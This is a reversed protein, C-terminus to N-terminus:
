KSNRAEETHENIAGLISEETTHFSRSGDVFNDKVVVIKLTQNICVIQNEPIYITGQPKDTVEFKIFKM